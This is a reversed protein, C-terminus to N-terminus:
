HTSGTVVLESLMARCAVVGVAVVVVAAAALLLPVDTASGPRDLAFGDRFSRSWWWMMMM